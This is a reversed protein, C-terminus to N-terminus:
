NPVEFSAVETGDWYARVVHGTVVKRYNGNHYVSQSSEAVGFTLHNELLSGVLGPLVRVLLSLVDAAGHPHDLVWDALAGRDATTDTHKGCWPSTYNAYTGKVTALASVLARLEPTVKDEM